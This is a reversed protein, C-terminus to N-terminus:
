LLSPATLALKALVLLGSNIIIEAENEVKRITGEKTEGALPWISSAWGLKKNM